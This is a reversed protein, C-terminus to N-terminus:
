KLLLLKAEYTGRSTELVLFYTGSSFKWSIVDFVLKYYGRSFNYNEVDAIESNTKDLVKYKFANEGPITGILRGNSSYVFFKVKTDDRISFTVTGKSSCPNPFVESIGENIIPYVPIGIKIKGETLDLNSNIEGNVTVQIPSMIAISDPGALTELLINFLVGSNVSNFQTGTVELYSEQLNTTNLNYSPSAENFGFNNGGYVAKIDILLSNFKILIKVNSVGSLNLNSYVPVLYNKGSHILTTDNFKLFEAASSSSFASIFILIYIIYHIKKIYIKKLKLHNEM